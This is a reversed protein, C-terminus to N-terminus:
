YYGNAKLLGLEDQSPVKLLTWKRQDDSKDILVKTIITGDDYLAYLRPYSFIDAVIFKVIKPASEKM